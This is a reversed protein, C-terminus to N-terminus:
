YTSTHAKLEKYADMNEMIYCPRAGFVLYNIHVQTHRSNRTPTWTRWSIVHGLVLCLITLIYKHTGQTGQLRGHEEMIYCPRAGFVLYNIHVQTHRSNRTTLIIYCPRSTHAKLEKYADMNEMIYCPRAGFMLYNIHVQTHRSNRTPTWTRWSIVHGLVLCLITLIYKHTGQTGQLRGHEGHYLM